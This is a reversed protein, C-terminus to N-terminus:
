GRSATITQYVEELTYGETRDLHIAAMGLARAPIVDKDLRDGVFLASEPACEAEALLHQFITPDPKARGFEGSIVVISFWPELGTARIKSRQTLGDGNTVIGLQMGLESLRSIVPISDRFCQWGDEYGKRYVLFFQAATQDDLPTGYARAVDQVRRVRNVDLSEIGDVYQQFHFASAEQWAGVLMELDKAGWATALRSVGERTAAVDDILTDDLDFAVLKLM